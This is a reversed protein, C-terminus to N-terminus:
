VTASNRWSPTSANVSPGNLARPVRWKLRMTSAERVANVSYLFVGMLGLDDACDVAAGSGVVVQIGMQRLEHVCLRAEEETRYTRQVVDLTLLDALPSLDPLMGEYTVLGVQTSLRKAHALAQLSM